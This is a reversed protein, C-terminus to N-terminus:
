KKKNLKQEALFGLRANIVQILLKNGSKKAKALQKKLKKSSNFKSAWATYRDLDQQRKTLSREYMKQEDERATQRAERERDEIYQRKKADIDQAYALKNADATANIENTTQALTSNIQGVNAGYQNALKINSTETAGGRIGSQALNDRLTRENQMRTVYAQKLQSDASTQAQAIRRATDADVSKNYNAKLKDYASTDIAM